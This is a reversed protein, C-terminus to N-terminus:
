RKAGRDVQARSRLGRKLNETLTAVGLLSTIVCNALTIVSCVVVKGLSSPDWASPKSDRITAAAPCWSRPAEFGGSRQFTM